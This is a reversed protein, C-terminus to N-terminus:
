MWDVVVVVVPFLLIKKKKRRKENTESIYAISLDTLKILLQIM